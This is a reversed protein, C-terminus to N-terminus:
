RNCYCWRGKHLGLTDAKNVNSNFLYSTFKLPWKQKVNEKHVTSFFYNKTIYMIESHM